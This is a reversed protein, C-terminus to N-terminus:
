LVEVEATASIVVFVRENNGELDAPTMVFGPRNPSYAQTYGVMEEGDAFVVRIKRGGGPVADSYHYEHSEDGEYTRVFFIAKLEEIDFEEIHGDITSLHFKSKNPFFDNTTGKVVTGDKRRVVIKSKEM